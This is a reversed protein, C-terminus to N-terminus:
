YVVQKIINQAILGIDGYSGWYSNNLYSLHNIEKTLSVNQYSLNNQFLLAKNKNGVILKNAYINMYLFEGKVLQSTSYNDLQVNFIGENEIYGIIKSDYNKM